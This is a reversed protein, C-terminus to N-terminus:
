RNLIWQSGESNRTLYGLLYDVQWDSMNVSPNPKNAAEHIDTIDTVVIARTGAREYITDKVTAQKGIFPMLKERPSIDPM